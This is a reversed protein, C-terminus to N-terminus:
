GSTEKQDSRNILHLHEALKKDVQSTHLAFWELLFDLTSEVSLDEYEFEYIKNKLVALLQNHEQTHYSRDPFGTDIMMNEESLFHFEAYKEVEALLRRQRDKPFDRALHVTKILDLFIQHEFDIRVNGVEYKKDWEFAM